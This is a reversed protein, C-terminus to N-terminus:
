TSDCVPEPGARSCSRRRDGASENTIPLRDQVAASRSGIRVPDSRSGMPSHDCEAHRDTLRFAAHDTCLVEPVQATSKSIQCCTKHGTAAPVDRYVRGSSIGSCPRRVTCASLRCYPAAM